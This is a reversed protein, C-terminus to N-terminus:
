SPWAPERKALWAPAPTASTTCPSIAAGARRKAENWGFGAHVVAGDKTSCQPAATSPPRPCTYPRTATPPSCCATRAQHRTGFCTSGCLRCSTAPHVGDECGRRDEAERGGRRDSARAGDRRYACSSREGSTCGGSPTARTTVVSSSTVVGCSGSSGLGCLAGPRWCCCFDADSRIADVMSALEDLSAPRLSRHVGTVGAGRIYAPNRPLLEDDLVATNLITRLTSYAHARATPGADLEEHWSRVAARTIQDLPLDGLTPYVHVRLSSRYTDRTLPRLPEGQQQSAPRDVTGRLGASDPAAQSRSRASGGRTAGEPFAM